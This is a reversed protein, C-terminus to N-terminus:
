FNMIRMGVMKGEQDVPHRCTNQQTKNLKSGGLAYGELSELGSYYPYFTKPPGLNPQLCGVKPLFLNEGTSRNTPQNFQKILPLGWEQSMRKKSQGTTLRPAAFSKQLEAEGAEPIPPQVTVLLYPKAQFYPM